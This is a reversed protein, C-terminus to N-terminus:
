MRLRLVTKDIPGWVLSPVVTKCLSAPLSIRNATLPLWVQLPCTKIVKNSWGSPNESCFKYANKKRTHLLCTELSYLSTLEKSIYATVSPTNLISDKFYYLGDLAPAIAWCTWADVELSSLRLKVGRSGCSLCSFFPSRCTTKQGRCTCVWVCACLLTLSSPSLLLIPIRM